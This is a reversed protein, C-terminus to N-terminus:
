VDESAVATIAAALDAREDPGPPTGTVHEVFDLALELDSRGQVREAYGGVRDRLDIPPEHVLTVAHPFRRRLRAMAEPPLVADTLVAHVWAREAAAFASSTLLEDLTGEVVALPRPVPLDVPEATVTGDVALDVLWAGKVHSRESFSYALPSGSYRVRGDGLVQRGHLHGLAVYHFGDFAGLSVESSGGVSLPRESDCSQGGAVFAHAVAVSRVTGRHALDARARDLAARLLADHGKAEPLGLRHRAVEPELYPIPYVAVPPGGDAPELLEPVDLSDLLGRLRVGGAALVPEAFGVRVSSDHNGSIGVIRAGAARLECLAYSLAQVAEGAPLQRDYVDGAVVVLEVRERRVVEVMADVAALQHELLPAGHFSRGLHWDGTHLLRM